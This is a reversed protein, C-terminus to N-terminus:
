HFVVVDFRIVYDNCNGPIRVRHGLDTIIFLMIHDYLLRWSHQPVNFLWHSSSQCKSVMELLLWIFEAFRYLTKIASIDPETFRITNSSIRLYPLLSTTGTYGM